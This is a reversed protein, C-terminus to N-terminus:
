PREGAAVPSRALVGDLVLELMRRGSDPDVPELGHHLQQAVCAGIVGTMALAVDAPRAQRLEGTPSGGDVIFRIAAALARNFISFDFAPAAEVPGFFVAHAVRVTPLHEQFLDYLDGSLAILRERTTGQREVARSLAEQFRRAAEELVATLLGDKSGFYYYLAPKTVGALSVIERVSAAAYGKRDFVQVAARLLRRRTREDLEVPAQDLRASTSTTDM